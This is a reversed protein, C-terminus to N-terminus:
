RRKCSTLVFVASSGLMAAGALYGLPILVFPEQLVGKADISTPCASWGIWAALLFGASSCSIALAGTRIAQQHKM